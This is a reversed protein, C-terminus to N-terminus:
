ISSTTIVCVAGGGGSGLLCSLVPIVESKSSLRGSPHVPRPVAVTLTLLECACPPECLIKTLPRVALQFPADMLTAFLIYTPEWYAMLMQTFSSGTSPELWKM